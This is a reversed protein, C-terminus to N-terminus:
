RLSTRPPIASHDIAGTKFVPTGCPVTPEFGVGEAAAPALVYHTPATQRRRSPTPAAKRLCLTARNSFTARSELFVQVPIKVVQVSATLM